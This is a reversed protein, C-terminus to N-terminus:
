SWSTRFGPESVVNQVFGAGQSLPLLTCYISYCHCYSKPSETHVYQTMELLLKSLYRLNALNWLTCSFSSIGIILSLDFYNGKWGNNKVAMDIGKSFHIFFRSGLIPFRAESLCLACKLACLFLVSSNGDTYIFGSASRCSVSQEKIVGVSWQQGIKTRNSHRRLM